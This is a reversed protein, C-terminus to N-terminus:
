IPLIEFTRGISSYKRLMDGINNLEDIQGRITDLRRKKVDIQGEVFQEDSEKLYQIEGELEIGKIMLVNFRAELILNLPLPSAHDQIKKIVIENIFKNREKLEKIRAKQKASLIKM